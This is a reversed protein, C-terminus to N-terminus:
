SFLALVVLRSPSYRIDRFALSANLPLNDNPTRKHITKRKKQHSAQSLQRPAVDWIHTILGVVSEVNHSPPRVSRGIITQHLADKAREPRTYLTGATTQPPM